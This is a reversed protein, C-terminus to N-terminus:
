PTPAQSQAGTAALAATTFRLAASRMGLRASHIEPACRAVHPALRVTGGGRKDDPETLIVLNLRALRALISRMREASSCCRFVIVSSRLKSIPIERDPLKGHLDCALAVGELYRYLPYDRVQNNAM